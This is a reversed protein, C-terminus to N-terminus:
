KMEFNEKFQQRTLPQEIELGEGGLLTLPEGEVALWVQSNPNLSTATYLVQALRGIMSASGGGHTFAESLNLHIGDPSIKLSLLRTESPITTIQQAEKPGTFLRTLATSLIKHDSAGQAFRLPTPYLTISEEGSSLWYIQGRAQTLLNGPSATPSPKPSQRSVHQSRYAWWATASGAALVAFALGVILRTTPRRHSQPDRNM